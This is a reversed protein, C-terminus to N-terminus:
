QKRSFVFGNTPEPFLPFQKDSHRNIAKERQKVSYVNRGDSKQSSSKNLLPKLNIVGNRRSLHHRRRSSSKLTANKIKKSHPQELAPIKFHDKSNHNFHSMPWGAMLMADGHSTNAVRHSKTKNASKPKTDNHHGNMLNKLYDVTSKGPM